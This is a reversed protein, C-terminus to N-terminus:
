GRGRQAPLHGIAVMYVAAEEVGDLGLLANVDDDFFGGLAVVGLGLATAVLYLHEAVHGAELLVFRYGREHYKFYARGFVASIVIVVAADAVVGQYSTMSALEAGEVTGRVVELAHHPVNYHYIGRGIAGGRVVIPYLELPYLAGGSPAARLKQVVHVNHLDLTHEGTIGYADILLRSLGASDLAADAFKPGAASSIVSRRRKITESIPESPTPTPPPLSIRDAHPYLKYSESLTTLAYPSEALDGIWRGLRASARRRLKSNEHYLEGTERVDQPIGDTTNFSFLTV